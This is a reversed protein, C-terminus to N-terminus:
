CAGFLVSCNPTLGCIKISVRRKQKGRALYVRYAWMAGFGRLLSPSQFNKNKTGFKKFFDIIILVGISDTRM